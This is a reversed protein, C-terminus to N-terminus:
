REKKRTLTQQGGDQDLLCLWGHLSLSAYTLKVAKLGNALRVLNQGRQVEHDRRTQITPTHRHRTPEHKDIVIWDGQNCEFLGEAVVERCNGNLCERVRSGRPPSQVSISPNLIGPMFPSRKSLSARSLPDSAANM